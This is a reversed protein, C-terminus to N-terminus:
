SAVIPMNTSLSNKPSPEIAPWTKRMSEAVASVSQETKRISLFGHTPKDGVPM